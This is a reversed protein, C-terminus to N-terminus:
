LGRAERTGALYITAHRVRTSPTSHPGALPRHERQTDIIQDVRRSRVLRDPTRHIPQAGGDRSALEPTDDLNDGPERRHLDLEVDARASAPRRATQAHATPRLRETRRRIHQIM